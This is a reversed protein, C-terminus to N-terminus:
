SLIFSKHDALPSVPLFVFLVHCFLCWFFFLTESRLSWTLPVNFSKLKYAKYAFSRKSEILLLCDTSKNPAQLSAVTFCVFSKVRQPTDSQAHVSESATVKVNLRWHTRTCTRTRWVPWISSWAPLFLSKSPKRLSVCCAGWLAYKPLPPIFKHSVAVYDWIHQGHGLKAASKVARKHTKTPAAM